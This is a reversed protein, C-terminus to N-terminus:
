YIKNQIFCLVLSCLVVESVSGEKPAETTHVEHLVAEKTLNAENAEVASDKLIEDKAIAGDGSSPEENATVILAEQDPENSVGQRVLQLAIQM